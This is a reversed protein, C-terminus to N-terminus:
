YWLSCNYVYCLIIQVLTYHIYKYVFSGMEVFSYFSWHIQRLCTTLEREGFTSFSYTKIGLLGGVGTVRAWVSDLQFSWLIILYSNWRSCICLLCPKAWIRLSWFKSPILSCFYWFSKSPFSMTILDTNQKCKFKQFTARVNKTASISLNLTNHLQCSQPYWNGICALKNQRKKSCIFNSILFIYKALKSM